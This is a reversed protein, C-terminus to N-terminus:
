MGMGGRMALGILDEIGGKPITMTIETSGGSAGAAAPQVRAVYPLVTGGKSQTAMLSAYTRSARHLGGDGLAQVIMASTAIGHLTVFGGGNSKADRVADVGPRKALTGADPAGALVGAVHAVVLSETAGLAIWTRAGDPVIFVHVRLPALAPGKGTRPPAPKKGGGVLSADLGAMPAEHSIVLELHMTEKPLKASAAVPVIKLTPPAAAGSSEKLWKAVGPRALAAVLAKANSTVVAVPEEVGVIRYGILADRVAAENPRAEAAGAKADKKPAGPALAKAIAADDVGSAHVMPSAYLLKALADTLAKADVSPVGEKALAEGLATALLERPHALDADDYGRNFTATEADAPLRLYAPPAVDVREPHSLGLRALMSTASTLKTTLTADAGADSMKVDLVVTDTDRAFDLLDTLAATLLERGASGSFKASGSGSGSALITRIMFPLSKANENLFTRVPKLRMEVHVDSSSPLRPATRSLYPALGALGNHGFACVLRVAATGYSPVLACTRAEDDDDGDGPDGLGDIRLLGNEGPVLKMSGSSFTAKAKAPDKVAASIAFAQTPKGMQLTATAALDIPQDMDVIDGVSEGAVVESVVDSGPMPVGPLQTKLWGGVVATAASPKAIRAYLILNSPEPVATLDASTVRAETAMAVPAKAPPAAEPAGGCASSAFAGVVGFALVTRAQFRAFPVPLPRRMKM